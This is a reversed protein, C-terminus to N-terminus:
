IETWGVWEGPAQRVLPELRRAFDDAAAQIAESRAATAPMDLPTGIRVVFGGNGDRLTFVPLLPAGARHAVLPAGAGLPLKGELFPALLPRKATGGARVSVVGNADLIEGLRALAESSEHLGLVVREALYGVEIRTPIPNLLSMGFRSGSFGHRPHSLHHVKLGSRWLGIKTVLSAYAFTSDWLVVGRKQALAADINALGLVKIPPQWGGPRYARLYPLQREVYFAMVAQALQEASLGFDSGAMRRIREVLGDTGVVFPMAMPGVLRCFASWRREPLLWAIPTLTFLGLLTGFDALGFLPPPKPGSAEQSSPLVSQKSM